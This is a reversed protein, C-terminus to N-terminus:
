RDACVLHAPFREDWRQQHLHHRLHHDAPVNTPSTVLQFDVELSFTVAFSNTNQVGLWYSGGPVINTPMSTTSLISLGNTMGALLTYDGTNTGMPPLSQNFLLNVPGTASLLRNTAFDANTPVDILFYDVGGTPVSNTQPVGNTPITLLILRYFRVPDLM